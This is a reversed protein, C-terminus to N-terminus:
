NRGATGFPSVAGKPPLSRLSRPPLMWDRGATGFPSVAGKPPLSRLSPPPLKM